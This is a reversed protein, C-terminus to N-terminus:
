RLLTGGPSAAPLPAPPPPGAGKLSGPPLLYLVRLTMRDKDGITLTASSAFMVTGRDKSHGLGLAHGVEHRATASIMAQDLARSSSDHTAILIEAGRIWGSGDFSRTTNGIKQGEEEAFKETWRVSVDASNSDVVFVFPLPFGAAQWEAFADRALRPYAPDWGKVESKPQVWVRVGDTSRENWRVLMSDQDALVDKIYSGDASVDLRRLVSAREETASPQALAAGALTVQPAAPSPASPAAPEEVAAVPRPRAKSRRVEAGVWVVLGAALVLPAADLLKM